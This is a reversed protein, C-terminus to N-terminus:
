PAPENLQVWYRGLQGVCHSFAASEVPKRVYSNAGAEYCRRMDQHESSSTLVVVPVAHTRPERRLRQIIDVGDLKPLKLDLLVVVPLASRGLLLDLAQQGDRAVLVENGIRAKRLARLTLEEDDPDDEVLVITGESM